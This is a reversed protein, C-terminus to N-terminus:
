EGEADVFRWRGVKEFGHSVLDDMLGADELEENVMERTYGKSNMRGIIDGADEYQREERSKPKQPPAARVVSALKRRYTESKGWKRVAADFDDLEAKDSVKSGQFGYRQLVPYFIDEHAALLKVFDEPSQRRLTEMNWILDDASIKPATASASKPATQAPNANSPYNAPARQVLQTKGGQQVVHTLEHALLHQSKLSQPEFRGAAFVIDRGVTFASAQIEKASRDAAADAHIRVHGFDFGFRPEMLARTSPDLSRGPSRVAEQVVSPAEHRSTPTGTTKVQLPAARSRDQAPRRMVQNAIRDAEQELSNDVSEVAFTPGPLPSVSQYRNPRDPPSLPIRAFSWSFARPKEEARANEDGADQEQDATRQLSLGLSQLAVIDGPSKAVKLQTKAVKPAYM